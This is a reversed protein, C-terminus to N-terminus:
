TQHFCYPVFDEEISSPVIFVSIIVPYFAVNAVVNKSHLVKVVLWFYHLPDHGQHQEDKTEQRGKEDNFLAFCLGFEVKQEDNINRNTM